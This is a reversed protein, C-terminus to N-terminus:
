ESSLETITEYFPPIDAGENVIHCDGEKFHPGSIRKFCCGHCAIPPAAPLCVLARRDIPTNATAGDQWM